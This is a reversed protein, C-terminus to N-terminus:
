NPKQNPRRSPLNRPRKQRRTQQDDRRITSRTSRDEQAPKGGQISKAMATIPDPLRQGLFEVGSHSRVVRTKDPHLALDLARLTREAVGLASRAQVENETFLLFDDAYRVFPIHRAGLGSIECPSQFLAAKQPM